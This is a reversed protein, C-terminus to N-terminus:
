LTPHLAKKWRRGKAAPATSGNHICNRGRRSLPQPADDDGVGDSRETARYPTVSFSTGESYTQISFLLTMSNAEFLGEKIYCWVFRLLHPSPFGSPLGFFHLLISMAGNQLNYICDRCILSRGDFDRSRPVQHAPAHRHASLGKRGVIGYPLHGDAVIQLHFIPCIVRRVRFDSLQGRRRWGQGYQHISFFFKDAIEVSTHSSGSHCRGKSDPGSAWM